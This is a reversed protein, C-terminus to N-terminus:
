ERFKIVRAPRGHVIAGAPVDGAAAAGASVVAGHGIRAGKSVLVGAGLWV